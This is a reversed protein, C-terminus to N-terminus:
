KRETDLSKPRPAKYDWGGWRWKGNGDLYAWYISPSRDCWVMWKGQNGVTHEVTAVVSPTDDAWQWIHFNYTYTNTSSLLERLLEQTQSQTKFFKPDAWTVNLAKIRGAVIDTFTGHEKSDFDPPYQAEKPLNRPPTVPPDAFAIEIDAVKVPQVGSGSHTAGPANGNTWPFRDGKLKHLTNLVTKVRQDGRPDPGLGFSPQPYAREIVLIDPPQNTVLTRRDVVITPVAFSM